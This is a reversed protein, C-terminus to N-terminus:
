SFTHGEAHKNLYWKGLWGDRHCSLQAAGGLQVRESRASEMCESTTEELTEGCTRFFRDGDRFFDAGLELWHLFTTILGPFNAKRYLLFSLSIM